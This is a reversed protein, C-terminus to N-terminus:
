EILRAGGCEASEEAEVTVYTHGPHFVSAWLMNWPERQVCIREGDKVRAIAGDDVKAHVVTAFSSGLPLVYAGRTVGVVVALAALSVVGMARASVGSRTEARDARSALWLNLAVLVVMWSLYYRLEHSQPMVSVAATLLAFGAAAARAERSRDRLARWVLLGV